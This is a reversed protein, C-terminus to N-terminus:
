RKVESDGFLSSVVIFWNNCWILDYCEILKLLLQKTSTINQTNTQTNTFGVRQFPNKIIVHVNHWKHSFPITRKLL